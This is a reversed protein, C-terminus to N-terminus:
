KTLWTLAHIEHSPHAYYQIQRQSVRAVKGRRTQKTRFEPLRLLRRLLESIEGVRDDTLPFCIICYERGTGIQEWFDTTNITVFIPDTVQRLLLPVADDKIVTGPRLATINIVRGRYWQVIQEELNAHKLQEDLIIM